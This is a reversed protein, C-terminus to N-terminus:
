NNSQIKNKVLSIIFLRESKSLSILGFLVLSLIVSLASVFLFNSINNDINSNVFYIVLYSLIFPFVCKCVLMKVYTCAPFATQKTIFYLRSLVIFASIVITIYFAIVPNDYLKFLLYCVPINLLTFINTFIQYSKINGTAQIGTYLPESVMRILMSVIVLNVFESAYEPPNGLWLSLIFQTNIAIPIFLVSIVIFAFKAGKMMLLHFEIFNGASYQKTIQPFVAILFNSAFLQVARDVQYAVARAANVTPGFFMNILINQGQLDLQNSLTELLNWATFSLLAKCMKKDSSIRFKCELFHKKCFFYYICTSVISIFFIMLSYVILKDFGVYSLSLVLLLTLAPETIGIYGYVDMREHALIASTYPIQIVSIFMSLVSIQYVINAAFLRDSPIVMYTNLFWLGITEAFVFIIAGIVIFVTLSSTFVLKLKEIGSNRGMEYTLFRQTGSSVLVKLVSFISIIGGVVNYLGFDQVGLENLVIRSTYLTVLMSVIMRFYLFITNKAIRKSDTEVRNHVMLNIILIQEAWHYRVM